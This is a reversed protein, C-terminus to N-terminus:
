TAQGDALLAALLLYSELPNGQALHRLRAARDLFVSGKIPLRLRPISTHDLSEIEGRALIRQLITDGSTPASQLVLKHGCGYDALGRVLMSKSKRGPTTTCNASGHG